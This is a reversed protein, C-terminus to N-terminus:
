LGKLVDVVKDFENSKDFFYDAGSDMCIKRYQPFSYNTLIIVKTRLFKERINKLVDLGSGGPMSIDLIVIDPKLEEIIEISKKVDEAEGVINVNKLEGILHSLRVRVVPSDDSIVLNMIRLSQSSKIREQM